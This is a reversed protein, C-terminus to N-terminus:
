ARPVHRHSITNRTLAALQRMARAWGSRAMDALEAAILRQGELSLEMAKACGTWFDPERM